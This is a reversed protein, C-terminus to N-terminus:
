GPSSPASQVTWSRGDWREALPAGLVAVDGVAICAITSTCSVGRLSGSDAGARQPTPQITWRSGRLREALTAPVLESNVFNGAQGVAACRGPTTCSM